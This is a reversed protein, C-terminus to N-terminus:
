IQEKLRSMDAKLKEKEEGPLEENIIGLYSCVSFPTYYSFPKGSSSLISSSGTNINAPSRGFLIVALVKDKAFQSVEPALRELCQMLFHEAGEPSDGSILQGHPRLIASCDVAIIGRQPNGSSLIQNRAEKLREKLKKQSILRKCQFDIRDGDWLIAVDPKGEGHFEQIWVDDVCIVELGIRLLKGAIYFVFGDNRARNSKANEKEKLIPGKKCATVIKKKLKPFNDVEEKWLKWIDVIECSENYGLIHNESKQEEEFFERLLKKYDEHRGGSVGIWACADQLDKLYVEYSETSSWSTDTM